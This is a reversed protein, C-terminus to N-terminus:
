DKRIALFRIRAAPNAPSEAAIIQQAVVIQTAQASVKRRSAVSSDMRAAIRM